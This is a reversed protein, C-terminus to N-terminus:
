PATVCPLLFTFFRMVSTSGGAPSAIPRGRQISGCVPLHDLDPLWKVRLGLGLRIAWSQNGM